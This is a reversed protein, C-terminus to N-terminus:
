VHSRTQGAQTDPVRSAKPSGMKDRPAWLKPLALLGGEEEQDAESPRLRCLPGTIHLLPQGGM